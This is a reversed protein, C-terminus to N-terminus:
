RKTYGEAESYIYGCAQCEYRGTNRTMFVEAAKKEAIEALKERKYKEEATEIIEPVQTGEVKIGSPEVNSDLLRISQISRAKSLLGNNSMSKFHYSSVVTAFLFLVFTFLQM